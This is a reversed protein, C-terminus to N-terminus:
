QIVVDDGPAGNLVDQGPGGILMDDDADGNLIDDGESCNLIDDGESGILIDDGDGGSAILQIAGAALASADIVDDGSLANLTFRKHQEERDKVSTAHRPFIM